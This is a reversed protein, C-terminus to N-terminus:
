AFGGAPATGTLVAALSAHWRFCRSTMQHRVARGAEGEAIFKWRGKVGGKYGTALAILLALALGIVYIATIWRRIMIRRYRMQALRERYHTHRYNEHRM